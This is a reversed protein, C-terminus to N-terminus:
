EFALSVIKKRLVNYQLGVFHRSLVYLFWATYVCLSGVWSPLPRNDALCGSGVKRKTENVSGPKRNIKLKRLDFRFVIATAFFASRYNLLITM